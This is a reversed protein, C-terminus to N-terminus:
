TEDIKPLPQWAVPSMPWHESGDDIWGTDDRLIIQVREGEPMDPVIALIHTGDRPAGRMDYNWRDATITIRSTYTM